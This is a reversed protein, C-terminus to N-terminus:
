QNRRLQTIVNDGAVFGLDSMMQTGQPLATMNSFLCCTQDRLHGMYGAQGYTFYGHTDVVVLLNIM